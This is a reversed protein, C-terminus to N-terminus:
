ASVKGKKQLLSWIIGVVVMAGAVLTGVQDQAIIGSGALYGGGTTLAHRILGMVATLNENM